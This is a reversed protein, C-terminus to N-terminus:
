GLHSVTLAIGVLIAEIGTTILLAGSTTPSRTAGALGLVVTAAAFIQAVKADMSRSQAVHGDVARKTHEYIFDLTQENPTADPPVDTV